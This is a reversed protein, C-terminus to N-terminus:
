TAPICNQTHLDMANSSCNSCPQPVVSMSCQAGNPKGNTNESALSFQSAHAQKVCIPSDTSARNGPFPSPKHCTLPLTAVTAVSVALTLVGADVEPLCVISSGVAKVQSNIRSLYPESWHFPYYKPTFPGKVSSNLFVYYRYKSWFTGLVNMAYSMTANHAAFDMGENEIRKLVALGPAQRVWAVGHM